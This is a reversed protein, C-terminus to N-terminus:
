KGIWAVVVFALEALLLLGPVFMAAIRKGSRQCWLLAALLAGLAVIPGVSLAAVEGLSARGAGAAMLYGALAYFFWPLPALSALWAAIILGWAGGVSDITDQHRMNGGM